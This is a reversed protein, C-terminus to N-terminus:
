KCLAFPNEKYKKLGEKLHNEITQKDVSHREALIAIALSKAAFAELALHANNVYSSLKERFIQEKALLSGCKNLEPMIPELDTVVKYYEMTYRFTKDWKEYKKPIGQGVFALREGIEKLRWRAQEKFDKPIFRDHLITQWLTIKEQFPESMLWLPTEQLLRFFEEDTLGDREIREVDAINIQTVIKVKKFYEHDSKGDRHFRKWICEIEDATLHKRVEEDTEIEYDIPVSERRPPPLEGGYFLSVAKLRREHHIDKTSQMAVATPTTPHPVITKISPKRQRKTPM